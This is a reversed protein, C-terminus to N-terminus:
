SSDSWYEIWKKYTDHEFVEKKWDIPIKLTEPDNIMTEIALRTFEVGRPNTGEKPLKLFNNKGLKKLVKNQVKLPILSFGGRTFGWNIQVMIIDCKPKYNNIFNVASKADVTWVAKVGGMGTVTKISYSKGDVIVDTEAETIPIQTDVREKGFKYLFLSILIKERLSGVEMGVKGARSSELEAIHFLKPLKSKILEVAEKNKFLDQIDKVDGM